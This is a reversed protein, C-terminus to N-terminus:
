QVSVASTEGGTLLLILGDRFGNPNGISLQEQDRSSPGYPSGWLPGVHSRNVGRTWPPIGLLTIEDVTPAPNLGYRGTNPDYLFNSAGGVRRTGNYSFVVLPEEGLIDMGRTRSGGWGSLMYNSLSVPYTAKDRRNYPVFADDGDVQTYDRRHVLDTQAVIEGIVKYMFSGPLYAQRRQNGNWVDFFNYQINCWTPLEEFSRRDQDYRLWTLYRSECLCQGMLTGQPGFRTGLEQGDPLSSVLPDGVSAQMQQIAVPNRVFPNTQYTDIYGKRILPDTCNESPIDFTEFTYLERAGLRMVLARNDGGILYPPYQGENDVSHQELALQINHLSAKVEAEKAKDKLKTYNPLVIAALVAIIAVVVLLELLTFGGQSARPCRLLNSRRNANCRRDGRHRV